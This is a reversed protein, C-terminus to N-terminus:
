GHGPEGDGLRQEARQHGDGLGSRPERRCRHRQRRRRDRRPHGREHNGRRRERHAPRQGPERRHDRHGHRVVGFTDCVEYTFSDTGNFDADPTYTVEGTVPDVSVSGDAPGSIVTVTSPDLNGDVDTDNAVVDVIVPTDEDTSGSDDNAVPPDNVPLVLIDVTATDCLVPTGDDCVEYTFSDTGNFDADPTYTVEGTVPDVSVSGDAPSTIIAVSTPDVTGDADTDNAVVDVTVPTDENTSGSDDNAVPPDNVPTVTVTVTATDCLVPTGDDCVEYTFSDTGHFDADPTYTVEGTLPDVSLTGNAAGTIITVTTPDVVGDIDTDNATVDITVPTDERTTAADDNAVPPDNVPDVIVTVIATDCLVPSATTVCRM